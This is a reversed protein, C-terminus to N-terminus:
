RLPYVFDPSHRDSLARGPYAQRLCVGLSPMFALFLIGASVCANITLWVGPQGVYNCRRLGVAACRKGISAASVLGMAAWIAIKHWRVNVLRLLFFGIAAKAIPMGIIVFLSAICEHLRADTARDINDIQELTEGFGLEASIQMFVAFVLLFIQFNFVEILMTSEVWPAVAVAPQHSPDQCVIALIYVYDDIGFAAVCVVRTYLRLLLFLFVLGFLFWMTAMAGTAKGDMGM